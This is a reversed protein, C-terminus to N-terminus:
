AVENSTDNASRPSAAIPMLDLPRTHEEIWGAARGEIAALACSRCLPSDDLLALALNPCQECFVPPEVAPGRRRVGRGSRRREGAVADSGTGGCGPPASTSEQDAADSGGGQLDLM